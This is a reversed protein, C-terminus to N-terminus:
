GRAAAGAGRAVRVQLGAMIMRNVANGGGGGCGIVKIRADAIGDVVSARAGAAARRAARPLRAAAAPLALPSGGRLARRASLPAPAACRPAPAARSTRLSAAAPAAPALVRM